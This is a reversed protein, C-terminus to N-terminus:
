SAELKAREEDWNPFLLVAPHLNMAVALRKARELGLAVRGSEISSIHGQLVNARRALEYQTWGLMERAVRLAEGPTLGGRFKAVTFEPDAAKSASRARSTTKKRTAAM